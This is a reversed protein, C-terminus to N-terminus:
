HIFWSMPNLTTAISCTTGWFGKMHPSNWMAPVIFKKESGVEVRITKNKLEKIKNELSSIDSEIRSKKFRWRGTLENRYNIQSANYEIETRIKKAREYDNISTTTLEKLWNGLKLKTNEDAAFRFDSPNIYGYKNALESNIQNRLNTNTNGYNDLPKILYLNKPSSYISRIHSGLDNDVGEELYKLQNIVQKKSFGDSKTIFYFINNSYNKYTPLFSSFIRLSEKINKGRENTSHASDLNLVIIIGIITGQKPAMNLSFYRAIKEEIEFSTDNFGPADFYYVDRNSFKHPTIISTKSESKHGIPPDDPYSKIHMLGTHEDKEKYIRNGKLFNITTSKGHGTQGIVLFGKKNNCKQSAEIVEQLKEKLSNSNISRESKDSKQEDDISFDLRNMMSSKNSYNCRCIILITVIMSLIRTM